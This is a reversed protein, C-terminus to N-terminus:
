SQFEGSLYGCFTPCAPSALQPFTIATLLHFPTHTTTYTHTCLCAHVCTRTIGKPSIMRLNIIKQVTSVEPDRHKDGDAACLLKESSSQSFCQIIPIESSPQSFCQVIPIESSPQSFSQVVPMKSSPMCFCQDIPIETYLFKPLMASSNLTFIILFRNHFQFNEFFQSFTFFSSSLMGGAWSLRRTFLPFALVHLYSVIIM